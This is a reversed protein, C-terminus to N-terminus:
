QGLLEAVSTETRGMDQLAERESRFLRLDMNNIKDEALTQYMRVMGYGLDTPAILYHQTRAPQPDYHQAMKTRHDIMKAFNIDTREIGSLDTLETMGPVYDPHDTAANLAQALQAADIFGSYRTFVLHLDKRVSVSFAM